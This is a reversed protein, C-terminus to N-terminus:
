SLHAIVTINLLMEKSNFSFLKLRKKGKSVLKNKQNKNKGRTKNLYLQCIVNNLNLTYLMINQYM